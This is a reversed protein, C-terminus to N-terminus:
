EGTAGGHGIVGRAAASWVSEAGTNGPTYEYLRASSGDVVVKELVVRLQENAGCGWYGLAVINEPLQEDSSLGLYRSVLAASDPSLPEFFNVASGIASPGIQMLLEPTDVGRVRTFGTLGGNSAFVPSSTYALRWTRVLAEESNMWGGVLESPDELADVMQLVTAAAQKATDLGRHPLAECM